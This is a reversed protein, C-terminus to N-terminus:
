IRVMQHSVLCDCQYEMNQACIDCYGRGCRPCMYTADEDIGAEEGVKCKM